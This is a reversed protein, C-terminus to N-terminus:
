DCHFQLLTCYFTHASIVFYKTISPAITAFVTRLDVNEKEFDEPQSVQTM